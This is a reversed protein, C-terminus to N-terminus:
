RDARDLELKELETENLTPNMFKALLFQSQNETNGGVAQIAITQFGTSSIGLNAVTLQSSNITSGDRSNLSSVAMSSQPQQQQGASSILGSASIGSVSAGSGTIVEQMPVNSNSSTVIPHAQRRPLRELQQRTAQM